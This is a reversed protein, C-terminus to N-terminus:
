YDLIMTQVPKTPVKKKRGQVNGASKGQSEGLPHLAEEGKAIHQKMERWNDATQMQNKGLVEGYKELREKEKIMLYMELYEQGEIKPKSRVKATLSTRRPISDMRQPKKKEEKEWPFLDAGKLGM